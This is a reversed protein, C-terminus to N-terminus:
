RRLRVTPSVGGALSNDAATLVRYTGARLKITRADRHGRTHSRHVTRWSGSRRQQVRLAYNGFAWDPDVDVRLRDGGSVASARVMPTTAVPAVITFGYTSPLPDTNGATDVAAVSFIHAGLATVTTAYPTECPTRVNADMACLFTGPESSIFEFFVAGPTFAPGPGMTIATDPPIIDAVKAVAPTGASTGLLLCFLLGGM